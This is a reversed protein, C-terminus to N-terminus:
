RREVILVKQALVPDVGVVALRCPLLSEAWQETSCSVARPSGRRSGILFQESWSGHEVGQFDLACCSVIEEELGDIKTAVLTRFTM